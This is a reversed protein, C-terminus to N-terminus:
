KKVKVGKCDFVEEVPKGLVRCICMAVLVSPVYDQNEMAIITQRSVNVEKALEKQTLEVEVRYEKM